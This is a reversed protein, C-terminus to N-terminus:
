ITNKILNYNKIEIVIYTHEDMKKLFHNGTFLQKNKLQGLNITNDTTRQAM